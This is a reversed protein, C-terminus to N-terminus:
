SQLRVQKRNKDQISRLLFNLLKAEEVIRIETQAVCLSPTSPLQLCELRHWDKETTIIKEAGLRAAESFVQRIEKEKFWHHDPYQMTYVIDACFHNLDAIFRSPNGIGCIVAVPKDILQQMKDIKGTQPTLLGVFDRYAYFLPKKGALTYIQAELESQSFQRDAGTVIIADARAMESLPERLRGLPLPQEGAFPDLADILLINMDRDLKLYQFGDDLIHVEIGFTEEAWLGASYRNQDAIVVVGPIHRALLLPEDGTLKVDM